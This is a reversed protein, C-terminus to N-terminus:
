QSIAVTATAAASSAGSISLVLPVANGPTVTTPIRANFQMLGAYGPALGAYLLTATQGGITLGADAVTILTSPLQGDAISASLQGGGTAYVVIIDGLKAQNDPGNV